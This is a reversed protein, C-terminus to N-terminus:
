LRLGLLDFAVDEGTDADVEDSSEKVEISSDDSSGESEVEVKVTIEGGGAPVKTESLHSETKEAWEDMVVLLDRLYQTDSQDISKYGILRTYVEDKHKFSYEIQAKTSEALGKAASASTVGDEIQPLIEREIAKRAMPSVAMLAQKERESAVHQQVADNGSILQGLRM